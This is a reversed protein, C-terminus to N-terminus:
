ILAGKLFTSLSVDLVDHKSITPSKLGYNPFPFFSPFYTCLHWFMFKM